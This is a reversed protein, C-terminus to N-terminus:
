CVCIFVFVYSPSRCNEIKNQVGTQKLSEHEEDSSKDDEEDDAENELFFPLQSQSLMSRPTDTKTRMYTTLWKAIGKEAERVHPNKAAQTLFARRQEMAASSTQSIMSMGGLTKAVYADEPHLGGGDKIVPTAYGSFGASHAQILAATLRHPGVIPQSDLENTLDWARITSLIMHMVNEMKNAYTSNGSGNMDKVVESLTHAASLLTQKHVDMVKVNYEAASSVSILSHRKRTVRSNSMIGNPIQMHSQHKSRSRIRNGNTNVYADLSGPRPYPPLVADQPQPVSPSTSCADDNDVSLHPSIINMDDSLQDMAISISDMTSPSQKLKMCISQIQHQYSNLKQQLDYLENDKQQYLQKYKQQQGNNTNRTNISLPDNLLKAFPQEPECKLAMSIIERADRIKKQWLLHISYRLCRYAHEHRADM